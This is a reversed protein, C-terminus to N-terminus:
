FSVRGELGLKILQDLPGAVNLDIIIPAKLMPDLPEAQLRVSATRGREDGEPSFVARLLTVNLATQGLEIRQLPMFGPNGADLQSTILGPFPTLRVSAESEGTLGLWGAGMRLGEAQSWRVDVRGDVRGVAESLAEPLYTLLEGLSLGTLRLTLDVEPLDWTFSFPDLDLKGGLGSVQLGTVTALKGSGLALGVRGDHLMWAGQRLTTISSTLEGQGELDFDGELTIGALEWDAAAKRLIADAISVQLRGIPKGSVLTGEGSLTLRGDATVGALAEGFRPALAAFWTALGFDGKEIRWTGEGTDANIAARGEVRADGGEVAFTVERNSEGPSLGTLQWRLRPGDEGLLVLEGSVTGAFPLRWWDAAKLSAVAALGVCLIRLWYM